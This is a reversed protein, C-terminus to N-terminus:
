IGEEVSGPEAPVVPPAIREAHDDDQKGRQHKARQRQGGCGLLDGVTAFARGRQCVRADVELAKWHLQKASAPEPALALGALLILPTAKRAHRRM